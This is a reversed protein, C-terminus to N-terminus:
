GCPFAVAFRTGVGLSSQVQLGGKHQKVISLVVALGLGHGRAKTSVFPEFMRAVLEPPIGPGTDNIELVVYCGPPLTDNSQPMRWEGDDIMRVQTQLSIVGDTSGIAEAANLVLNMVVQRLQVENARLQVPMAGLQLQMTISRPVAATLLQSMEDILHNIDLPAFRATRRGAYVLMQQSLEAASRAAAIINHLHEAAASSESLDLLALEANGLVAVLLNNFDHAAGGALVGLSALRQAVQLAEEIAEQKASPSPQVARESWRQFEHQVLEAIDRLIDLVGNCWVHPSQDIACVTGIVEGGASHLPVGAYAMLGLDSNTLSVASLANPLLEEILLPSDLAVVHRCFSASLPTKRMSAWPEAVGSLGALRQHDTDVLTIMATPAQLSHAALRALRDFQTATQDDTGPIERLAQLRQPNALM